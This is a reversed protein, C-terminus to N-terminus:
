SLCHMLMYFDSQSFIESFYTDSLNENLTSQRITMDQNSSAQPIPIPFSLHRYITFLDEVNICSVHLIIVIDDNQRLYSTEIQFLGSVQKLLLMYGEATAIQNISEYLKVMQDKFLYDIALKRDHLQKIVSTVTELETRDEFMSLQDDLTVQILQPQSEVLVHIVKVLEEM